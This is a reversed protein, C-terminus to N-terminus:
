NGFAQAFLIFDQFDVTGNYDLDGALGSSHQMHLLSMDSSWRITDQTATAVLFQAAQSEGEWSVIAAEGTTDGVHVVAEDDEVFMSAVIPKTPHSLVIYAPGMQSTANGENDYFQLLPGALPRSSIEGVIRFNGDVIQITHVRLTDQVFVDGPVVESLPQSAQSDNTYGSTPLDDTSKVPVASLVFLLFLGVTAWTQLRLKAQLINIQEQM